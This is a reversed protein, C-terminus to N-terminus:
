NQGRETDNATFTENTTRKKERPFTRARHTSDMADLGLSKLIKERSQKPHLTRTVDCDELRTFANTKWIYISSGNSKARLLYRKM